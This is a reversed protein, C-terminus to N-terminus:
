KVLELVERLDHMDTGFGSFGVGIRLCQGRYIDWPDDDLLILDRGELAYGDLRAMEIMKGLMKDKGTHWEAVIYNFLDLVGFAELIRRVNGEHNYSVLGTLVGNARLAELVERAEPRLAFLPGDERRVVPPEQVTRSYSYNPHGVDDTPTRDSLNVGSM